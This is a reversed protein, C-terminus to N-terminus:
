GRLRPSSLYKYFLDERVFMLCLGSQMEGIKSYGMALNLLFVGCGGGVPVATKLILREVGYGGKLQCLLNSKM